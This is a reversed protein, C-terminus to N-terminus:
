GREGERERELINMYEYVYIFIYIYADNISYYYTNSGWLYHDLYLSMSMGYFNINYHQDEIIWKIPEMSGVLKLVWLFSIQQNM